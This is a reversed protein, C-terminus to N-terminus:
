MYPIVQFPLRRVGSLARQKSIYSKLLVAQCFCLRLIEWSGMGNSISHRAPRMLIKTSHLGITPSSAVGVANNAPNTVVTCPTNDVDVDISSYACHYNRDRFIVWVKKPGDNESLNLASEGSYNHGGITIPVTIGATGCGEFPTRYVTPDLISDAEVIQYFGESFASFSFVTHGSSNVRSYYPKEISNITLSAGMNGTGIDVSTSVSSKKLDVASCNVVIADGAHVTKVIFNISCGDSTATMDSFSGLDSTFAYTLAGGEPDKARIHINYSSGITIQSRDTSTGNIETIEADGEIVPAKNPFIRLIASPQVAHSVLCLFPGM